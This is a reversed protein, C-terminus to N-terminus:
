PKRFPCLGSKSTTTTSSAFRASGSIRTSGSQRKLPGFGGDCRHHNDYSGGRKRHQLLQRLFLFRSLSICGKGAFGQAKWPICSGRSAGLVGTAPWAAAQPHSFPPEEAQGTGREPKWRQPFSPTVVGPDAPYEGFAPSKGHPAHPGSAVIPSIPAIPPIPTMSSVPAVPSGSGAIGVHGMARM